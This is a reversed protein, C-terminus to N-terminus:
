QFCSLIVYCCLLRVSQHPHDENAPYDARTDNTSPGQLLVDDTVNVGDSSDFTDYHQLSSSSSRHNTYAMTTGITTAVMKRISTNSIIRGTVDIGATMVMEKVIGSILNCGIPHETYWNETSHEVYRPDHYKLARTTMVILPSDPTSDPRKSKYLAFLTVPCDDGYTAALKGVGYGQRM